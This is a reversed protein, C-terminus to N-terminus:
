SPQTLALDPDFWTLIADNEERPYAHSLDPIVKLRVDAGARSIDRCGQVARGVPFMWDHAGHVWYIRRAGAHGLDVPPLVCSIPAISSAPSDQSLGWGLAFTGGDSMGTMLIRNRDIAYCTCVDEMIVTLRRADLAINSISWTRDQSTPALLAFGRSRAERLWTWLFDRGHGYGGHLAVVLPWARGPVRSEPVFLSYGGRAYPDSEQGSHIINSAGPTASGRVSASGVAGPDLFYRDIEPFRACLAFLDEQAQCHKRMAKLVSLFAQTADGGRGFTDIADALLGCARELTQRTDRDVAADYGALARRAAELPAIHALLGERLPDIAFPHLRRFAEDLARLAGM